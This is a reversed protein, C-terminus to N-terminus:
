MTLWSGALIIVFVIFLVWMIMFIKGGGFRPYNPIDTPITVGCKPCTTGTEPTETGCQYCVPPRM